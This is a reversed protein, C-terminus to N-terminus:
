LVPGHQVGAASETRFNKRSQLSKARRDAGNVRQLRETTHSNRIKISSNKDDLAIGARNAHCAGDGASETSLRDMQRCRALRKIVSGSRNGGAVHKCEFFRCNAHESRKAHLTM